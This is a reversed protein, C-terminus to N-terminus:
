NALGRCGIIDGDENRIFKVPVYLDRRDPCRSKVIYSVIFGVGDTPYPLGTVDGYCTQYIPVMGAGSNVYSLLVDHQVMRAVTGDAPVPIVAVDTIITVTHPTLNVLKFM